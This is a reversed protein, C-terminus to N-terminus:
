LPLHHAPAPPVHTLLQMFAFALEDHVAGVSARACSRDENRHYNWQDLSSALIALDSFQLM